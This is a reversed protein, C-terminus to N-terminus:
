LKCNLQNQVFLYHCPHFLLLTCKYRTSSKSENEDEFFRADVPTTARSDQANEERFEEPLSGHSNEIAARASDLEAKVDHYRQYMPRMVEKDAKLPQHGHAVAFDDDFKKLTRKLERKENLLERYRSYCDSTKRKRSYRLRQLYRRAIKQIDIAAGERICKKMDRYRNYVDVM